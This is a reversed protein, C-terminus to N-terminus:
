IIFVENVYHSVPYRHPLPIDLAIPPLLAIPGSCHRRPPLPSAVPAHRSRTAATQPTLRSLRGSSRPLGRGGLRDSRQRGPGQGLPPRRVGDIGRAAR